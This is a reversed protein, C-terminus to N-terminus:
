TISHIIILKTYIIKLSLHLLLQLSDLLFVVRLDVFFQELVHESSVVEGWGEGLETLELLKEHLLDVREVMIGIRRRSSKLITDIFIKITQPLRQHM